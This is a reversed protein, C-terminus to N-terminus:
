EIVLEQLIPAIKKLYDVDVKDLSGDTKTVFPKELTQTLMESLYQIGEMQSMVRKFTTTGGSYHKNMGDAYRIAEEKILNLDNGKFPRIEKCPYMDMYDYIEFEVLRTM